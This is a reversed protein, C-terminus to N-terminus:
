IKSFVGVLELHPSWLFQDVPLVSELVYGGDALTRADRSFTNPNCSVAVIRPVESKALEAVQASAGARPPDFVVADFIKLEAATLPRRFLDRHRPIIQKFGSSINAAATLADLSSKAGEAALVQHNRALPFTFTGLGCFLDAVRGFGECAKTVARTLAAEGEETAQVFSAPPLVVRAGAFDMVPERRIAVPDLFGQEQWHLAALDHENAFESLSERAALDLAKPADILMDVGSATLAMHVTAAMRQDLIAVLLARLPAFLATLESRTVPCMSVDIITHSQRENFGLVVGAATRLAKLAVRRRSAKPSIAPELVTVDEFGHQGLAMLARERVWAKYTGDDFFQLQCGGCAGFHACAPTQREASPSLIEVLESYLGNRRSENVKARVKDGPMTFPVFVPTDNHTGVGDGQAGLSMIEIDLLEAM